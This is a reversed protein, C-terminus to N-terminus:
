RRPIDIRLFSKARAKFEALNNVVKSQFIKAEKLIPEYVILEIGKANIRKM